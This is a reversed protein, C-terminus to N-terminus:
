ISLAGKLHDNKEKGKKLWDKFLSDYSKRCQSCVDIQDYRLDYSAGMKKQLIVRNSEENEEDFEIKDGCRDCTYFEVRAM